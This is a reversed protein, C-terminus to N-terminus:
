VRAGTPTLVRPVRHVLETLLRWVMWSALTLGVSLLMAISLFMATEPAIALADNSVGPQLSNMWEHHWTFATGVLTVLTSMAALAPYQHVILVALIAAMVAGWFMAADGPSGLVSDQQSASLTTLFWFGTVMQVLTGGIFLNAGFRRWRDQVGTLVLILGFLALPAALFHASRPLISPDALNWPFIFLYM